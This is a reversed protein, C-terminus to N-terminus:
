KYINVAYYEEYSMNNKHLEKSIKKGVYRYHWAESRFGTIDEFRPTYRLIYGYKYANNLMWKYEKSTVFVNKHKSAVDIALGTEHESFRPKAIYKTVYEKGYLNNYYKALDLQDEKSRYATNIYINSNDSYMEKFAEYAEKNLKLKDGNTYNKDVSVLNDPVFNEDLKFHKNVLMDTSFKKVIVPDRYDPKQYGLNVLVITSYADEGTDSSYKTYEDFLSLKSFDYELFEELYLVRDRKSFEEVDKESGRSLILNIDIVSYGKKLLTNINKILLNGKHYKILNYKKLYKEKYDTSEFAKNLTKSFKISEVYDKKWHFLIYNAAKESYGIRKITHIEYRYFLFIALLILLITLLVRGIADYPEKLRLRKVTAM